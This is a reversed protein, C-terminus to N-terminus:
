GKGCVKLGYANAKTNADAFPSPAGSDNNLLVTPDTKAKTIGDQLSAVLADVTDKDDKPADLAKLDTVQKDLNPLAVDTAITKLQEPTPSDTGLATVAATADKDLQDNAKQCIADAQTIFDAKSLGKDDDGGCGAFILVAGILPAAFLHTRM